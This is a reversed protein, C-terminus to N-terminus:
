LNPPPPGTGNAGRNAVDRGQLGHCSAVLDSKNDALHTAAKSRSPWPLRGGCEAMKEEDGSLRVTSRVM